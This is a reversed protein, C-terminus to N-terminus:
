AFIKVSISISFDELRIVIFSSESQFRETTLSLTLICLIVKRTKGENKHFSGRKIKNKNM